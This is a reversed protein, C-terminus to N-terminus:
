DLFGLNYIDTAGCKELDKEIKYQITEMFGQDWPDSTLGIDSPGISYKIGNLCFTTEVHKAPWKQDKDWEEREKKFGNKWKEKLASIIQENKELIQEYNDSEKKM